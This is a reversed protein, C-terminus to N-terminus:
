VNEKQMLAPITRLMIKIDGALSYNTAYYNDLQMRELESMESTGRKTVQWLGTIGAPAMFRLNFEDITIKEAEYLPLPRNGVISMDGKLVNFLQPLEDISTNRIFKGIKTVRPDNSFKIFKGEDQIKKQYLYLKECVPNGGLYLFSQCITGEPSCVPCYEKEIPESNPDKSENESKKYQNLHVLDKMQADAGVRMSRFKYFDFIKYGRGVRKAVYFVPGRSEIKIILIVLLFLPSLVLIAMLAVAIDFIRKSTPIKYRIHSDSLKQEKESIPNDILWNIRLLFEETVFDRIFTEAVREKVLQIKLDKGVRDTLIIFPIGAFKPESKLQKNLTIGSSSYVGGASIVADIQGGKQLWQYFRLGNEFLYVDLSLGVKNIFKEVLDADAQILAISRKKEEM